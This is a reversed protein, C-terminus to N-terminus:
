RRVLVGHQLLGGRILKGGLLSGEPEGGVVDVTFTPTATIDTPGTVLATSPITVTITEQATIDYTVSATLTITVVTDSTRVVAAVVELDRVKANWGLAEGQASDLGQLIEDRQLDFSGAGAAIWTDGTLTIIITKGGAVIDTETVSATITGTIAARRGSTGVWRQAPPQWVFAKRRYGTRAGYYAVM